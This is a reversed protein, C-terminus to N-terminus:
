SGKIVFRVRVCWFLDSPCDFRAQPIEGSKISLTTDVTVLLGIRAGVKQIKTSTLLVILLEFSCDSIM